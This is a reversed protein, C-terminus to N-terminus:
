VVSSMCHKRLSSAASGAAGPSAEVAVLPAADRSPGAARAAEESARVVATVDAPDASTSTVVGVSTGLVSIVAWSRSTSVGNTTMTSNAWRLSAESADTVLVVCGDASSQSLASEVLDQAPIM